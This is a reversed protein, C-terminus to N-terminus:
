YYVIERKTYWSLDTYDGKDYRYEVDEIWNGEKDYTYVHKINLGGDIVMNGNKDYTFSKWSGSNVLTSGTGSSMQQESIILGKNNYRYKTKAYEGMVMNSSIKWVALEGSFLENDSKKFEYKYNYGKYSSIYGADNYQIKEKNHSVLIGQKNYKNKYINENENKSCKVITQELRGEEDYVYDYQWAIEKEKNEEKSLYGNSDYSSVTTKCNASDVVINGNCTDINWYYYETIQKVKGKLNDFQSDSLLEGKINIYRNGSVKYSCPFTIVSDNKDQNFAQLFAQTATNTTDSLDLTFKIQASITLSVFLLVIFSYEKKM